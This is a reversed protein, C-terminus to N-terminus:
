TGGRGVGIRRTMGMAPVYSNGHRNGRDNGWLMNNNQNREENRILLSRANEEDAITYAYIVNSNIYRDAYIRASRITIYQQAQHPLEDWELQSVVRDCHLGSPYRDVLDYTQAQRDWVKKGRLVLNGSPYRNPSFDVTTVNSGVLYQGNSDAALVVNEDTNWRWGEAMLDRGVEKLVQQALASDTIENVQDTALSSIPAEGIVSLLINVAELKEM